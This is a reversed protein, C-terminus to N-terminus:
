QMELAKGGILDPDRGAERVTQDALIKCEVLLVCLTRGDLADEL